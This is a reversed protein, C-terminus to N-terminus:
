KHYLYYIAAAARRWDTDLSFPTYTKKDNVYCYVTEKDPDNFLPNNLSADRYCAIVELRKAPSLRVKELYYLFDDVFSKLSVAQSDFFFGDKNLGRKSVQAQIYNLVTVEFHNIQVTETPSDASNVKKIANNYVTEFLTQSHASLAAFALMCTFFLKKM